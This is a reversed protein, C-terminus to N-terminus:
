LVDGLVRLCQFHCQFHCAVCRVEWVEFHNRESPATFYTTGSDVLVYKAQFASARIEWCPLCKLQLLNKEFLRSEHEEGPGGGFFFAGQKVGQSWSIGGEGLVLAVYGASGLQRVRPRCMRRCAWCSDDLWRQLKSESDNKATQGEIIQWQHPLGSAGAVEHVPIPTASDWSRSPPQDM